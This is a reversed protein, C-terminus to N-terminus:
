SLYNLSKKILSKNEWENESTFEKHSMEVDIHVFMM